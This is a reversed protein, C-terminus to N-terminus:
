KEYIYYFKFNLISLILFYAISNYYSTSFHGLPKLLWDQFSTIDYPVTPEFGVKEALYYNLAFGKYKLTKSKKVDIKIIIRYECNM